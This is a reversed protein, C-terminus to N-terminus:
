VGTSGFGGDGRETNDLNTVEKFMIKTVKNLVLQAIRDGSHIIFDETGLNTLIVKIEGRYDSDITGPSNLVFVNDMAALGSRSRVQAEWGSPLAIFLGTLILKTEQPKIIVYDGDPIYAMIDMGAAGTTKYQPLPNNSKNIVKVIVSNVNSGDSLVFYDNKDVM